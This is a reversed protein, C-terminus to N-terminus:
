SSWTFKVPQGISQILIATAIWERFGYSIGLTFLTNMSWVIALPLIIIICLFLLIGILTKMNGRM